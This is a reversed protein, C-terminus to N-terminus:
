RLGRRLQATNRRQLFQNVSDRADAFALSVRKKERENIKDAEKREKKRGTRQQLGAAEDGIFIIESSKTKRVEVYHQGGRSSVIIRGNELIYLDVRVRNRSPEGFWCYNGCNQPYLSLFALNRTHVQLFDHYKTVKRPAFRCFESVSKSSFKSLFSVELHCFRPFWKELISWLFVWM